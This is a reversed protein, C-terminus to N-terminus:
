VEIVHKHFSSHIYGLPHICRLPWKKPATSPEQVHVTTTRSSEEVGVKENLPM